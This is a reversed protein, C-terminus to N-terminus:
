KVLPGTDKILLYIVIPLSWPLMIHVSVTFNILLDKYRFISFQSNFRIIGNLRKDLYMFIYDSTNYMYSFKKISDWYKLVTGLSFVEIDIM